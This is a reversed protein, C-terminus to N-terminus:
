QIIINRSLEFDRSHQVEQPLINPVDITVSSNLCVWYPLPEGKMLLPSSLMSKYSSKHQHLLIEGKANFKANQEKRFLFGSPALATLFVKTNYLQVTSNLQICINISTNFHPDEHKGSHERGEFVIGLDQLAGNLGKPKRNYFAQPIFHLHNVHLM